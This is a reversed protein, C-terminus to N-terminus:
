TDDRDAHRLADTFKHLKECHGIGDDFVYAM